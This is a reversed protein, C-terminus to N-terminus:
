HEWVAEVDLEGTEDVDEVLFGVVDVVLLDDEVVSPFFVVEDEALGAGVGDVVAAGTM